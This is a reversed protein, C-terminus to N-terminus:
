DCSGPASSSAPEDREISHASIHEVAEVACALGSIPLDLAAAIRRFTGWSPSAKALEISALTGNTVGAQMALAERAIGKAERLSRVAASLAV